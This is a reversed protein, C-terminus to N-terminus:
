TMGAQPKQKDVSTAQRTTLRNEVLADEADAAEDEQPNSPQVSALIDEDTLDGCVVDYNFDAFEEFDM